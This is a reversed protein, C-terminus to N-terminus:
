KSELASIYNRYQEIVSENFQNDIDEPNIYIIDSPKVYKRGGSRQDKKEDYFPALVKKVKGYNDRFVRNIFNYCDDIQEKARAGTIIVSGSSFAAITIKKCDGDGNGM